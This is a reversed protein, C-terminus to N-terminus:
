AALARAIAAGIGSTSGTVIATRGALRPPHSASISPFTMSGTYATHRLPRWTLHLRPVAPGGM